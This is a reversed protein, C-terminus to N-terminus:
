YFFRCNKLESLFNSAQAKRPIINKILGFLKKLFEFIVKLLAILKDITM